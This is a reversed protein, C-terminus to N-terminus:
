ELGPRGEAQGLPRHQEMSLVWLGGCTRRRYRSDVPPVTDLELLDLSALPGDVKGRFMIPGQQGLHCTLDGLGQGAVEPDDVQVLGDEGVACARGPRPGM